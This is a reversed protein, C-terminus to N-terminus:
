MTKLDLLCVRHQGGAIMAKWEANKDIVINWKALYYFYQPDVCKGILDLGFVLNKSALEFKFPKIMQIIRNSDYYCNIGVLFQGSPHYIVNNMLM